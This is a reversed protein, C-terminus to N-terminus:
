MHRLAFIKSAEGIASGAITKVKVSVNTATFGEILLMLQVLRRDESATYATSNWQIRVGPSSFCM